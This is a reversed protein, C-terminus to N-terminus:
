IPVDQRNGIGEPWEDWTALVDQAQIDGARARRILEESVPIGEHGETTELLEGLRATSIQCLDRDALDKDEEIGIDIDDGPIPVYEALTNALSGWGILAEKIDRCDKGVYYHGTQTAKYKCLITEIEQVNIPRESRPPAVWDSFQEKLASVVYDLEQDNLPAKLDGKLIVAAGKRVEAYICLSSGPFEIKALGLRELMDALKWTIWPGFMPVPACADQVQNFTVCRCLKEFFAEIAEECPFYILTRQAQKGRFHRREMGRPLTRLTEQLWNQWDDHDTAYSAVGAHYFLWYVWLWRCLSGRNLLNNDIGRQLMIYIPDLDGTTLLSEGFEVCAQWHVPNVKTPVDM